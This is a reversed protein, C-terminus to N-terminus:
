RQIVREMALLKNKWSNKKATDRQIKQFRVPWPVSLLKWINDEWEEATKGISILQPFRKLEEIPTSLVPKGVYFYEMVKMPYCYLNFKDKTYPILCIDFSSIVSPMLTKPVPGKWFVNKLSFFEEIDPCLKGASTFADDRRAGYFVFQIDPLRKAVSTLLRYDIRRTIGGVFGAVIGNERSSNVHRTQFLDSAFGLPVLSVNKRYGGFKNLLAHSNVFTYTARRFLFRNHVRLEESVGEYYDVCDYISQYHVFINILSSVYYPDFFWLFKKIGPQSFKLYWYLCWANIRYNMHKIIPFRQGPIVFFPHFLLANWRKEFLPVRRRLGLVNKWSITDESCFIVITNKKSLLKATQFAYDCWHTIPDNLIFLIIANRLM